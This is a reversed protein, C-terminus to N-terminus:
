LFNTLLPREVLINPRSIISKAAQPRLKLTVKINNTNACDGLKYKNTNDDKPPLKTCLKKM